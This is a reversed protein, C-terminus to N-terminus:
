IHLPGLFSLMYVGAHVRVYHPHIYQLLDFSIRGNKDPSGKVSSFFIMPLSSRLAAWYIVYLHKAKIRSTLAFASSNLLVFYFYFFLFFFALSHFCCTKSFCRKIAYLLPVELGLFPPQSSAGRSTPRPSQSRSKISSRLGAIPSRQVGKRGGEEDLVLQSPLHILVLRSIASPCLLLSWVFWM